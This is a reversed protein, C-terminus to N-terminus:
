GSGDGGPWGSAGLARGLLFSFLAMGLVWAVLLTDYALADDM